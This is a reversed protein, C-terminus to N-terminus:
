DRDLPPLTKILKAPVGAVVSYDPFSKTVVSGAAVVCCRGLTVGHLITVHVGVWTGYGIVIPGRVRPYWRSMIRTGCDSHTILKTGPGIACEDEIIIKDPLDFFVDKAIYCRNGITLNSFDGTSDADGTANDIHFPAKFRVDSGINAGYSKLLKGLFTRPCKPLQHCVYEIGFLNYMLRVKILFSERWLYHAINRGLGM